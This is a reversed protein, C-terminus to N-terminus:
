RLIYELVPAALVNFVGTLVMVLGAIAGEERNIQFAKNSGVAHAGMGFSTGRSLHSKLPLLYLTAGGFAAGFVGTIIVFVATLEPTGGIEGSMTMAFPTSVSRPLLSLRLSDSVGLMDALLWASGISITSGFVVGVLLTLWHRHIIQRQKYIPVAFAVTAPGLLVILWHTGSIYVNYNSHSLITIAILLIPTIVLPATWWRPYRRYFRKSFLYLAITVLSWLLTVEITAFLTRHDAVFGNLNM